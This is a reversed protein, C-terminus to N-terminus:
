VCAPRRSRLLRTAFGSTPCRRSESRCWATISREWWGDHASVSERCEDRLQILRTLEYADLLRHRHVELQALDGIPHHLLRVAALRQQELLRDQHVSRSRRKRDRDIEEARHAAHAHREADLPEVLDSRADGLQELHLHGLTEDRLERKQ